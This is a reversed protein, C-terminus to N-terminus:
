KSSIDPASSVRPSARHLRHDPAGRIETVGHAGTWLIWPSAHPRSSGTSENAAGVFCEDTMRSKTVWGVVAM